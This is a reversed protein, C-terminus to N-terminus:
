PSRQRRSASTILKSDITPPGAAVSKQIATLAALALVMSTAACLIWHKRMRMKMKM